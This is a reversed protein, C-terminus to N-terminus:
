KIAEIFEDSPQINHEIIYHMLGAPWVWGNYSYERSGNSCECVRCRSMGKYATMKALREVQILRQVFLEQGEWPMDNPVPSPLDPEYSSKWFGEKLCEDSM